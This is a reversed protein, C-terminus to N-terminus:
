IHILSLDELMANKVILGQCLLFVAQYTASVLGPPTEIGQLRPTAFKCLGIPRCHFSFLDRNGRVHYLSSPLPADELGGAAIKAALGVTTESLTGDCIQSALAVSLARSAARAPNADARVTRLLRAIKVSKLQHWAGDKTFGTDHRHLKNQLLKGIEAATEGVLAEM